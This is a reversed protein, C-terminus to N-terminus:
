DLNNFSLGKYNPIDIVWDYINFDGQFIRKHAATLGPKISPIAISTCKQPWEYNAEVMIMSNNHPNYDVWIFKSPLQNIIPKGDDDSFNSIQDGRRFPVIYTNDDNSHIACIVGDM